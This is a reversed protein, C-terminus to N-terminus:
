APSGYECGEKAYHFRLVGFRDRIARPDCDAVWKRDRRDLEARGEDTIPFPVHRVNPDGLPGWVCSGGGCTIYGSATQPSVVAQAQANGRATGMLYVIFALAALVLLIAVGRRSDRYRVCTM